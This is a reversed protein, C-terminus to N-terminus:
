SGEGSAANEDMVETPEKPFDRSNWSRYGFGLERKRAASSEVMLGMYPLMEGADIFRSAVDRCMSKQLFEKAVGVDGRRFIYPLYSDLEPLYRLDDRLSAQMLNTQNFHKLGFIDLAVKAWRKGALLEFVFRGFSLVDTSPASRYSRCYKEAAIYDPRGRPTGSSGHPSGVEDAIGFDILKVVGKDVVINDPAIDHHVIGSSHVVSLQGCVKALVDLHESVDYDGERLIDVLSKGAYPFVLLPMYKDPAYKLMVGSSQLAAGNAHLFNSIRHENDFMIDLDKWLVKTNRGSFPDYFVRAVELPLKVVYSSKGPGSAEFVKACGGAGIQHELSLGSKGLYGGILDHDPRSELYPSGNLRSGSFIVSAAKGSLCHVVKLEPMDRYSKPKEEPVQVESLDLRCDEHVIIELSNESTM